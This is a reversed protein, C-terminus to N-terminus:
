KVLKLDATRTTGEGVDVDATAEKYGAAWVTVKYKGPNVPRAIGLVENPVSGGNLKVILSSLTSAAPAVQIRFTPIRPKLSALEKKGGEQAQRFAEPGDKEGPQRPGTMINNYVTNYTLTAGNPRPM